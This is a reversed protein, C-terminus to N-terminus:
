GSSGLSKEVKEAKKAEEEFLDGPLRLEL